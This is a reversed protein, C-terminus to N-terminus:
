TLTLPLSWCGQNAGATVPRARSALLESQVQALVAPLPTFVRSRRDLRIWSKTFRNSKELANLVAVHRNLPHMKPLRTHAALIGITDLLGFHNRSVQSDGAKLMEEIAIRWVPKNM